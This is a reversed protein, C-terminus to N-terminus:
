KEAMLRDYRAILQRSRRLEECNNGTHGPQDCAFCLRKTPSTSRRSSTQRSQQQQSRPQDNFQQRRGFQRRNVRLQDVEMPEPDTQHLPDRYATFAQPTSPTACAERANRRHQDWSSAFTLADDLTKPGYERLRLSTAEDKIMNIFVDVEYTTGFKSETSEAYNRM